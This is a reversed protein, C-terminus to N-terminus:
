RHQRVSSPALAPRTAARPGPSKPSPSGNTGPCPAEPRFGPGPGPPSCTGNRGTAPSGARSATRSLSPSSTARAAEAATVATTPPSAVGSREQRAIAEMRRVDDAWRRSAPDKGTRLAALLRPLDAGPARQDGAVLAVAEAAARNGVAAAGDLLARALRPDAPVRALAKGLDTALGDPAVAGLERLVEVADDMASPPPADPLSLGRGGPSGWCALVLAAGTLDAVAIEPTPHAPAAGYTKQDYCRVVRGPGQRAARGARQEASARSCSVNVLGSMGRGADRRPERSLGSDIVLRVGPVTLSSEALSTSVIIRPSGGPERGSVARDQEAPGIQGHLELVEARTGAACAARWTPCKGPGRSSYWPTLTWAPRSHKPMRRLPRTQWM